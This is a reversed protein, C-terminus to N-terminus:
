CLYWAIISIQTLTLNLHFSITYWIERNFRTKNWGLKCCSGDRLSLCYFGFWIGFNSRPQLCLGVWMNNIRLKCSQGDFQKIGYELIM